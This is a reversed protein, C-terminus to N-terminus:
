ALFYFFISLYYGCPLFIVTQGIVTPRCLAVMVFWLMFIHITHGIGYPSWLYSSIDGPGLGVETCLSMKMWVVTQPLLVRVNCLSRYVVSLLVTGYCQAISGNAVQLPRGFVSPVFLMTDCCLLRSSTDATQHLVCKLRCGLLNVSAERRRSKAMVQSICKFSRCPCVCDKFIEVKSIKYPKQRGTKQYGRSDIKM